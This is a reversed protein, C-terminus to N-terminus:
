RRRFHQIVILGVSAALCIAIFMAEKPNGVDGLISQNIFMIHALILFITLSALLEVRPM